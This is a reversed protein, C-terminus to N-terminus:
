PTSAWGTAAHGGLLEREGLQGDQSENVKDVFRNVERCM